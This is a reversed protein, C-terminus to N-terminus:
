FWRVGPGECRVVQEPGGGIANKIAKLYASRVQGIDAPDTTMGWDREPSM